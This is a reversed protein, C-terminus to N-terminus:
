LNIFNKIIKLGNKQSKEPHFQTGYINKYEVSSIFTEGYNCTSILHDNTLKNISLVFSHVFYFDCYNNIGKFLNSKENFEVSNFGVHPIKIKNKNKSINIKKVEANILNLGETNGDEYGKSALLQMGLCIGLIKSGNNLSSKIAEDIRLKKINLMALRFSGVGPLILHSSDKIVEIDNSIKYNYGLSNLASQVSWLNNILYDIIVIKKM